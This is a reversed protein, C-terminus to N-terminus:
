LKHLRRKSIAAIGIQIVEALAGSLLPVFFVGATECPAEAVVDAQMFTRIQHHPYRRDAGHGFPRVL